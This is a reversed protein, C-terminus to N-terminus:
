DRSDMKIIAAELEDLAEMNKEWAALFTALDKELTEIEAQVELGKAFDAIIEPTLQKERLQALRREAGDINKELKDNEKQLRKEQAKKQKRIVRRESSESKEKESKVQNAAQKEQLAHWRDNAFQQYDGNYTNLQNEALYLVTGRYQELLELDHSILIIAGPYQDIAEILISKSTPDLHNTPEDLILLNAPSVFLKALAVRAKEGGSLVDIRKLQADGSFLFIGLIDRIKDRYHPDAAAYIEDYITNSLQLGAVTHQAFYGTQLRSNREIEGTLPRLDGRLLKVFTSKGSGNRGLILFREGRYISLKVGALLQKQEPYHFDVDVCHLLEKAVPPPEPFTFQMSKATPHDSGSGEDLKALKKLRSQVQKAKSAKYRFRAAFAEIAKREAVVSDLRRQESEAREQRQQFCASPSGRYSEILRRNILLTRSSFADLFSHDHSVAIVTKETNQLFRTLWIVSDIDLHNTAEDLLLLQHDGALLRGLHARMHWGGSLEQVPRQLDDHSFGLGRAIAGLLAAAKDGNLNIRQTYLQDLEILLEQTRTSSATQLQSQVREIAAQCRNLAFMDARLFQQLEQGSSLNIEQPLYGISLQKERQVRLKHQDNDRGILLRLLTTKGSGNNGILAIKEDRNIKVATNAFITKGGLIVEDLKLELMLKGKQKRYIYLGQSLIAQSLNATFTYKTGCFFAGKKLTRKHDKITSLAPKRSPLPFLLAIPFCFFYFFSLDCRLTQDQSLVFAPPTSLV